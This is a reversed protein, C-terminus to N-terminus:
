VHGANSETSGTETSPSAPKGPSIYANGQIFFRLERDTAASVGVRTSTIISGPEYGDDDLRIDSTELDAGYHSLNIGLAQCLKGPGNCLDRRSRISRNAQMAAVGDLPELARLLVAGAEDDSKAVVNCCHHVGYSLYVYLFGPPGFMVANRRTPGRFAHSAPDTQGCYAETEVIRGSICGGASRHVLIKGLLERAVLATPRAYFSRALQGM